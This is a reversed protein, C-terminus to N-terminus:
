TVIWHVNSLAISVFTVSIALMALSSDGAQYLLESATSSSFAWYCCKSQLCSFRPEFSGHLFGSLAARAQLQTAQWGLLPYAPNRPESTLWGLWFTLKFSLLLDWRLTVLTAVSSSMWPGTTAEAHMHMPIWLSCVLLSIILLLCAPPINNFIHPIM